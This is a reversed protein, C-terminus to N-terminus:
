ALGFCMSFVRGGEGPHFVILLLGPSPGAGEMKWLGVSSALYGPVPASNSIIGPCMQFVFGHSALHYFSKQCPIFSCHSTIAFRKKLAKPLLPCQQRPSLQPVTSPGGQERHHQSPESRAQLEGLLSLLSFSLLDGTQVLLTFKQTSKLM